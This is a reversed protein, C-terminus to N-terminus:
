GIWAFIGKKLTPSTLSLEVDMVYNKVKYSRKKHTIILVYSSVLFFM